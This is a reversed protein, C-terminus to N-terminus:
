TYQYENRKNKEQWQFTSLVFIKTVIDENSVRNLKHLHYEIYYFILPNRDFVNSKKVIYTQINKLNFM